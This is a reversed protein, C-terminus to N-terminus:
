TNLSGPNYASVERTEQFPAAPVNGSRLLSAEHDIIGINPVIDRWSLEENNSGHVPFARAQGANQSSRSNGVGQNNGNEGYGTNSSFQVQQGCNNNGILALIIQQSFLCQLIAHLNHEGPPFERMAKM